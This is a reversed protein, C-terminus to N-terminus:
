IILVNYSSYFIHLAVSSLQKVVLCHFAQKANKAASFMKEGQVCGLFLNRLSQYTGNFINKPTNPYFNTYAKFM